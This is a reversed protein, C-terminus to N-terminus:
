GITGGFKTVGTGSGSDEDVWDVHTIPGTRVVEGGGQGARGIALRTIKRPPTGDPVELSAQRTEEQDWTVTVIMHM